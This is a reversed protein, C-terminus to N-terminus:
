AARTARAIAARITATAEKLRGSWVHLSIGGLDTPNIAADAAELAALMDPASAALRADPESWYVGAIAHGTADYVVSSYGESLAHNEYTWPTPSIKTSM